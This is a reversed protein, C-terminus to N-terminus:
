AAEEEAPPNTRLLLAREKMLYYASDSVSSTLPQNSIDRIIDRVLSEIERDIQAERPEASPASKKSKKEDSM